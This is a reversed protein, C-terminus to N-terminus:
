GTFIVNGFLDNMIKCLGEANLKGHVGGVFVIRSPDVQLQSRTYNSDSAAWPIVQVNKSRLNGSSVKFYYNIGTFSLSYDVRCKQLLLKM